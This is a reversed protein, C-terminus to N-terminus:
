IQFSRKGTTQLQLFSKPIFGNKFFGLYSFIILLVLPPMNLQCNHNVECNLKREKSPSVGLCYFQSALISHLSSTCSFYSQILRPITIEYDGQTFTANKISKHANLFRNKDIEIGQVKRSPSSVAIFNSFLGEGCGLELIRGTKPILKEVQEYPADWFRIRSFVRTYTGNSYLKIIQDKANQRV